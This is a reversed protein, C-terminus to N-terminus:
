GAEHEEGREVTGVVVDGEGVEGVIGDAAEVVAEVCWSRVGSLV